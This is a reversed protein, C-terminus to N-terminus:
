ILPLYDTLQIWSINKTNVNINRKTRKKKKKKFGKYIKILCYYKLALKVCLRFKKKKKKNSRPIYKLTILRRKLVLNKSLCAVKNVSYFFFPNSFVANGAMLSLHRYVTVVAVVVMLFFRWYVQRRLVLINCFKRKKYKKKWKLLMKLQCNRYSFSVSNPLCIKSKKKM